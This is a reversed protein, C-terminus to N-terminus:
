TEGRSKRGVEETQQHKSLNSKSSIMSKCDPCQFPQKLNTEYYKKFQDLPKKNYTGDENWRTAIPTIPEQQEDSMTISLRDFLDEDMRIKEMLSFLVPWVQITKSINLTEEKLTKPTTSQHNSIGRILSSKSIQKWWISNRGDFDELRRRGLIPTKLISLSFWQWVTSPLFGAGTSITFIGNDESKICGLHHLIEAM